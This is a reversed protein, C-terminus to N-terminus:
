KINVESSFEYKNIFDKLWLPLRAKAPDKSISKSFEPPNPGIYFSDQDTSMLVIPAKLVSRIKQITKVTDSISAGRETIVLKFNYQSLDEFDIESRNIVKFCAKSIGKLLDGELKKRDCGNNLVILIHM